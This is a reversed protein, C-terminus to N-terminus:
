NSVNMVPNNSAQGAITIVVPFAGKAVAPVDFNAQYLGISGPTLGMYVVNAQVGGVTVSNNGTVPSLSGPAPAGTVLKGTAQVPGGGTFYAVVEDGVAAPASGTNVSGNANVVVARNNGFVAIGPTGTAPVYIAAANSVSTGNTVIVTAVSNGPIDWPMQADIQMPDVYFLPAMEGNVTVTTTLLETPLTTTTAGASRTALNQGFLAFVSGPPTASYAYSAVNGIAQSPNTFASHATGTRVFQSSAALMDLTEGHLGGIVFNLTQSNGSSDALTASALCSFAATYTGSATLSAPTAGSQTDKYTATVKGQGDFQLVGAEDESGNQTTGSLTFGSGTFTYAGSLTAAACGVPESNNGSGSYVYNGDAGVIDYQSGGSWALLTFTTSSTTTVTLTGSCSSPLSYTGAYSFAKGQAVNTNVTGALTVNGSGDFTATGIGQYSGAFNGAASIGRGSLILSYTGNLTSNSCTGAAPQASIIHGGGTLLLNGSRALSAYFNTNTATLSYISFSMTYSHSSSDSLTAAGICNTGLTYTGTLALPSGAAGVNSSTINATVNGQGDFQLLGAGDSAGSVTNTSLAFGTGNFTYAGSLTATSCGTPQTASQTAGNGTYSYTADNGAMLFDKGQNFVMVNLTASGGSTITVLAACNSQVSYTGSWNLSTGVAQNTNESVAITVTSLGDFTASGDAQLVSTFAGASSVQRGSMSLAYTGNLSSSTCAGGGIETQALIPTAMLAAVLFSLATSSLKM